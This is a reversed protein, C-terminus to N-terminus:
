LEALEQELKACRAEWAWAVNNTEEIEQAVMELTRLASLAKNYAAVAAAKEDHTLDKWARGTDVPASADNPSCRRPYLHFRAHDDIRM